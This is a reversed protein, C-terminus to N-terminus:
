KMKWNTLNVHDEDVAGSLGYTARVAELLYSAVSANTSIDNSLTTLTTIDTAIAELKQQATQSQEVLIPNGPTTGAQLRSNIMAMVSYYDRATSESSAHL